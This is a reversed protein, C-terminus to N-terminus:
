VQLQEVEAVAANREVQVAELQQRQKLREAKAEEAKVNATQAHDAFDQLAAVAMPAHM